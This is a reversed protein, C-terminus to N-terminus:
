NLFFAFDKGDAEKTGQGAYISLAVNGFASPNNPLGSSSESLLEGYCEYHSLSDGLKNITENEAFALHSLLLLAKLKKM